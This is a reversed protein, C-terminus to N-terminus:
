IAGVFSYITRKKGISKSPAGKETPRQDAQSGTMEMERASRTLIQEMADLVGEAEADTIDPDYLSEALTEFELKNRIPINTAQQILSKGLQSYEGRDRRTDENILGYYSSGFGLNGKERLTRMRNITELGAQIPAFKEMRENQLKQAAEQAKMQAEQGRMQGQFGQQLAIKQMEPDELDLGTLKKVAERNLGQSRMQEQQMQHKQYMEPIQQAAQQFAAAFKESTRPSRREQIIQVM